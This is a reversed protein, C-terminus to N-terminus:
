DEVTKGQSRRCCCVWSELMLIGMVCVVVFCCPVMIIVGVLPYLWAYSASDGTSDSIASPLTPPGCVDM